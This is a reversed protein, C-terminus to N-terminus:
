ENCSTRVALMHRRWGDPAGGMRVFFSRATSDDTSSYFGLATAPFADLVAGVADTLLSAQLPSSSSLGLGGDTTGDLANVVGAVGWRALGVNVFEETLTNAPVM